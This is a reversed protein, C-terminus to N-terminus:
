FHPAPPPPEMPGDEHEMPPMRGMPPGRHMIKVPGMHGVGMPGGMLPLEDFAAKQAPDLQGYFRKTAEIRARMTEQHMAIMQEMRALREPTTKPQGPAQMRMTAAPDPRTAALYAALAPEQSPRLQLIARLHRAQDQEDFGRRVVMRHEHRDMGPPAPPVPQAYAAVGAAAYLVFAAGALGM